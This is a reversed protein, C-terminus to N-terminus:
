PAFLEALAHLVSAGTKADLKGLRRICRVLDICLIEEVVVYGNKGKFRCPVRWPYPHRGTTMPAVIVTSFTHNMEDPSVVVCPRRKNIEHGRAPELDVFFVDFRSPAGAPATVKTM